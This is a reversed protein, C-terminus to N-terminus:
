HPALCGAAAGVDREILGLEDRTPVGRGTVVSYVHGGFGARPFYHLFGWGILMQALPSVALYASAQAALHGNVRLTQEGPRSTLTLVTSVGPALPEPATLDVRQGQTDLWRAQPHNGRLALEVGHLGEAKSAQFVIGSHRPGPVSMAVIAFHPDQLQYPLRNRSDPQSGPTPSPRRCWLGWTNPATHDACRRGNLTRLIPPAMAGGARDRESVWNLMDMAHGCAYGSDAVARLPEGEGAPAGEIGGRGQAMDWRSAGYHALVAPVDDAPARRRCSAPAATWRPDLLHEDRKM